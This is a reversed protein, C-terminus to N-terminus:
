NSNYAFKNNEIQHCLCLMLLLLICVLIFAATQWSHLDDAERLNMKKKLSTITKFRRTIYDDEMLSEM